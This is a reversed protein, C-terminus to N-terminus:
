IRAPLDNHDDSPLFPPPSEANVDGASRHLNTVPAEPRNVDTLVTREDLTPQLNAADPNGRLVVADDCRALNVLVSDGPAVDVGPMRPVLRTRSARGTVPYLVLVYSTAVRQAAPVQRLCSWYGPREVAAGPIVAVVKGRRWGDRYDYHGDLLFTTCASLLPVVGLLLPLTLASSAKM